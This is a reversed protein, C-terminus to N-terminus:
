KKCVTNIVFILQYINISEACTSSCMTEFGSDPESISVSEGLEQNSANKLSGKHDKEIKGCFHEKRKALSVLCDADLGDLARKGGESFSKSQSLTVSFKM